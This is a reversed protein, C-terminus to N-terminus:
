EYEHFLAIRRPNLATPLITDNGGGALRRRLSRSVQTRIDAHDAENGEEYAAIEEKLTDLRARAEEDLADLKDGIDKMKVNVVNNLKSSLRESTKAIKDSM